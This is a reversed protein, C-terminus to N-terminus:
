DEKRFVSGNAFVYSEYFLDDAFKEIDIYNMLGEPVNWIEQFVMEAFDKKSDWKGIFKDEFKGLKYDDFKALYGEIGEQNDSDAYIKIADFVEEHFWSCRWEKPIYEFDQFMLEPDEEDRHVWRCYDCFDEYSDFSAIDVWEGYLSGNNYKAYTGVYVAPREENSDAEHSEWVKQKKEEEKM